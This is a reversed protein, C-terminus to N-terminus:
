NMMKDLVRIDDFIEDDISSESSAYSLESFLEDEDEDELEELMALAGLLPTAHRHQLWAPYLNQHQIPNVLEILPNEGRTESLTLFVQRESLLLVFSRDFHSECFTWGGRLNEEDEHNGGNDSM